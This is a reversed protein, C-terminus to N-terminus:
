AADGLEALFRELDAQRILRRSGIKVSRLANSRLLEYLLRRSVDPAAPGFRLRGSLKVSGRGSEDPGTVVGVKVIKHDVDKYRELDLVFEMVEQPSVGPIEVTSTAVLVIPVRGGAM